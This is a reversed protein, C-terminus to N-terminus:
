RQLFEREPLLLATLPGGTTGCGTDLCIFNNDVHPLGGQQAYHGCVVLKPPTFGPRFLEEHRTMVMDVPERSSPNAPDVGCHSVIMDESEFYSPCSQLFERHAKPMALFLEERVDGSVRSLYSRITAIGGLGALEYFEVSGAFYGLLAAEHNGLLCITEPRNLKLEIVQELTERSRSGRNIYDGVFIIHRNELAGILESLQGAEGHIDGVIATARTV